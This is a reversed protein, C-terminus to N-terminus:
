ATKDMVRKRLSRHRSNAGDIKLLWDKNKESVSGHYVVEGRSTILEKFSEDHLEGDVSVDYKTEEEM